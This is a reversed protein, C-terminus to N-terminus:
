LHWYIKVQTVNKLIPDPGSGSNGRQEVTGKPNYSMMELIIHGNLIEM